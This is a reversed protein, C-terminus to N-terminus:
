KITTVTVEVKLVEGTIKDTATAFLLTQGEKLTISNSTSFQRFASPDAVRPMVRSNPDTTFISSDTISLDLKLLGDALTIAGCDINTGVSRYEPKTTTVRQESTSTVNGVPVDVGMRVRTKRANAVEEPDGRGMENASVYLSFPLSSSKRGDADFRTLVVDVRVPIIPKAPGPAPQQAAVRLSTLALIVAVAFTRVIKSTIMM